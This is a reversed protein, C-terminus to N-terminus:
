LVRSLANELVTRNLTLYSISTFIIADNASKSTNCNICVVREYLFATQRLFVVGIPFVDAYLILFLGKWMQSKENSRVEKPSSM